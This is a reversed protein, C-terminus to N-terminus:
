LQTIIIVSKEEEMKMTIISVRLNVSFKLTKQKPTFRYCNLWARIRLQAHSFQQM